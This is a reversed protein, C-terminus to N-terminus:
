TKIGQQGPPLTEHRLNMVQNRLVRPVVLQRVVESGKEKRYILYLLGKQVVFHCTHESSPNGKTVAASVFCKRLSVDGLQEEINGIVLDYMRSSLCM